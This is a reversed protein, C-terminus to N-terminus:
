RVHWPPNGGNGLGDLGTFELDIVLQM